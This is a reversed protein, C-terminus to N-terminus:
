ILYEEIDLVCVGIIGCSFEVVFGKKIATADLGVQVLRSLEM